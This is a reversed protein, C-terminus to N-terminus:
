PQLEVILIAKGPLPLLMTAAARAFAAWM